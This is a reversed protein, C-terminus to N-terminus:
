IVGFVGPHLRHCEPCPSGGVAGLRRGQWKRDDEVVTWKRGLREGCGWPEAEAEQRLEEKGPVM